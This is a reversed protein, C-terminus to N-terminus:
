AHAPTRGGSFPRVQGTPGPVVRPDVPGVEAPDLALKGVRNNQIGCLYLYGDDENISTVMPYKELTADWWVKLVTGAEDFKIVCSVNLQPVIWDDPPLEKTM